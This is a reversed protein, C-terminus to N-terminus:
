GPRQPYGVIGSEAIVLAHRHARVDFRAPDYDEGVWNVMEEHDPHRPADLVQLFQEFGGIGGCDEPPGAREGTALYPLWTNPRPIRSREILIDHEWCDGFDYLYMFTDGKSLDLDGLSVRTSDIGDAEEHPFEYQNGHIEFQYLHYDYWEMLMQINLHLRHLTTESHVHLRRWILPNSGRLTIKLQLERIRHRKTHAPTNKMKSDMTM